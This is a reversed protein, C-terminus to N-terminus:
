SVILHATYKQNGGSITVPYTGLATKTGVKWTWSVVGNSDSTKPNLDKSKSAGSNYVVKISYSTNPTGQVTITVEDGPNCPVPSFSILRINDSPNTEIVSPQITSPEKSTETKSVQTKSTEHSTSPQSNQTRSTESHSNEIKSTQLKSTEAISETKSTQPKSTEAISETKSAQPKSTEAISEPKSTQTHSTETSSEPKSYPIKSPENPTESRHNENTSTEIKSELHINPSSIEVNEMINSNTNNSIEKSNESTSQVASQESTISEEQLLSSDQEPIQSTVENVSYEDEVIESFESVNSQEIISEMIIQNETNTPLKNKANQDSQIGFFVLGLFFILFSSLFKLLVQKLKPLGSFKPIYNMIPSVIFAVILWLFGGIIAIGGEVFAVIASIIFFGSLICRIVDLFSLKYEKPKQTIRM